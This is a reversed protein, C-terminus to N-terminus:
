ASVSRWILSIRGQYAGPTGQYAGPTGARRMRACLEASCAGDHAQRPTARPRPAVAAHWSSCCALGMFRPRTASPWSRPSCSARAPRRPRDLEVLALVALTGVLASSQSSRTRRSRPSTSCWERLERLAAPVSKAVVPEYRARAPRHPRALAGLALVAVGALAALFSQLDAGVRVDAEALIVQSLPLALQTAVLVCCVARLLLLPM